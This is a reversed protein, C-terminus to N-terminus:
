LTANENLLTKVHDDGAVAALECMGAFVINAGAATVVKKNVTDWFVPASQAFAIADGVVKLLKFAGRTAVAGLANAAIGEPSTCVALMGKSAAPGGLVVVDGSNVVTGGNLFDVRKQDEGHFFIAQQTQAM